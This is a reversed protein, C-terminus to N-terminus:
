YVSKLNRLISAALNYNIALLLALCKRKIGIPAHLLTFINARHEAMLETALEKENIEDKCVGYRAMKGLLSFPTRAKKVKGLQRVLPDREQQTLEYIIGDAELLDNLKKKRLQGSTTSKGSVFYFYKIQNSVVISECKNIYKYKFDMDEFFKGERFRLDGLTEKKYLCLCPSYLRSQKTSEQMFFRMINNKGEIHQTKETTQPVKANLNESMFCDFLVADAKFKQILGMCYAYTDPMIRDDSDVFGVYEGSAIDLAINRAKAQGENKKHIVRVRSDNLHRDCIDPCGDTSGDDILIIELNKYTQNQVSDLCRDLYKETNYVPIIVSIKSNEM